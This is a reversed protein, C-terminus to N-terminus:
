DGFPPRPRKSNRDSKGVGTLMVDLSLGVWFIGFAWFIYQM